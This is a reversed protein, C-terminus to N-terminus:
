RVGFLLDGYTPFPWYKKATTTEAEDCVVRLQGMKSLISDRIMYAEAEIDAADQLKLVAEKLEEARLSIQEEIRALKKLM